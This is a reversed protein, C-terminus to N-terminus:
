FIDLLLCMLMPKSKSNNSHINFRPLSLPNSQKSVYGRRTVFGLKFGAQETLREVERSSNGNPYAISQVGGEIHEDLLRKSDQIESAAEGPDIQTLIRHSLAHSGFNIVSQSMAHVQTWDLYRDNSLDVHSGAQRQRLNDLLGDIEEYSLQKLGSIFARLQAKDADGEIGTIEHLYTRDAQADSHVLAELRALLEEQWFVIDNEIYHYPLFITAPVAQAELAPKAHEFNDRWGDDFTLLCSGSPIERQERFLEALENVSLVRFEEKLWVLHRSFLGAETVIGSTSHISGMLEHPVVRHYMLVVARNDLRRRKLLAIVGSYYLTYAILSKILQKLMSM